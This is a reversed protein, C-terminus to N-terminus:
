IFYKFLLGSLCRGFGYDNDFRTRNDVATSSSGSMTFQFKFRFFRRRERSGCRSAKGNQLLSRSKSSFPLKKFFSKKGLSYIGIESKEKSFSYHTLEIKKGGM